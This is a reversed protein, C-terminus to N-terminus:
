RRVIRKGKAGRRLGHYVSSVTLHGHHKEFSVALACLRSSRLLFGLGFRKVRCQIALQDVTLQRDAPQFKVTREQGCPILKQQRERQFAFLCRVLLRGPCQMLLIQCLISGVLLFADLAAFAKDLIKGIRM